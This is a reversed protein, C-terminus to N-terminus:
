YYTRPGPLICTAPNARSIEELLHHNNHLSQSERQKDRQYQGTAADHCGWTSYRRGSDLHHRHNSMNCCCRGIHASRYNIRSSVPTPHRRDFLDLGDDSASAPAGDEVERSKANEKRVKCISEGYAIVQKAVIKEDTM